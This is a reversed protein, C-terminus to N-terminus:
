VTFMVGRLPNEPLTVSLALPRGEPALAENLGAETVLEPEEVRVMVEAAVVGAAVEVRFMVPALPDNFGVEFTVSM